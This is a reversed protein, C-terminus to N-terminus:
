NTPSQIERVSLNKFDWVINDSRFTIIPGGNTIVYDKPKGCNASYFVSDPSNSYWGGNDILDTVKIWKNNAKDDLYSEMKVANNNDINYIVIKWGIWRGILSNTVQAEARKDTYGGTHWIEKAWSVVGNVNIGGKLSTGECPISSDHRGGRAYWVLSNYPPEASVVRAYGTIEVNKWEEAGPPTNVNMRVEYNYKGINPRGSIQWSGDPQKTINSKPNFIGDTKPDAMNIFWERGGSKTPYIELIGFKDLLKGSNTVFLFPKTISWVIYYSSVIVVIIIGVIIVNKRGILYSSRKTM